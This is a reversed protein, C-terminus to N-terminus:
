GANFSALIVGEEVNENNTGIFTVTLNEPSTWDTYNDEDLWWNEVFIYNSKPHILKASKESEAYVVVSDYTDYDFAKDDNRTILYINM